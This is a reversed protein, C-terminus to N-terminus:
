RRIQLFRTSETGYVRIGMGAVDRKTGKLYDTMTSQRRRGTMKHTYDKSTSYVGTAKIFRFTYSRINVHGITHTGVQLALWRPDLFDVLTCVQRHYTKGVIPGAATVARAM